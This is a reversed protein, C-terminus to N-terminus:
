RCRFVKERGPAADIPSLFQADKIKEYHQPNTSLPWNISNSRMQPQTM